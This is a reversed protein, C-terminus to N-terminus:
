NHLTAAPPASPERGAPGPPDRPAAPRRDACFAFLKTLASPALARYHRNPAPSRVRQMITCLVYFWNKEVELSGNILHTSPESGPLDLNVRRINFEFM